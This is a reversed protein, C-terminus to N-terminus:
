RTKVTGCQLLCLLPECQSLYIAAKVWQPQTVCIHTLLSVMMPALLPKDGPRRWAMIQVLASFNNIRGRPVFPLSIEISIWANEILFNWKFIDDPFHRKSLTTPGCWYCTFPLSTDEHSILNITLILNCPHCVIPSVGTYCHSTKSLSSAIM